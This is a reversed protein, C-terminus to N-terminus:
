CMKIGIGLNHAYAYLCVFMSNFPVLRSLSKAIDGNPCTVFATSCDMFPLKVDVKKCQTQFEACLPIYSTVCRLVSINWLTYVRCRLIIVVTVMTIFPPVNVTGTLTSSVM